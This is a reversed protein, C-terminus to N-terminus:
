NFVISSIGSSEPPFINILPCIVDENNQEGYPEDETLQPLVAGVLALVVVHLLLVQLDETECSFFNLKMVHSNNFLGSIILNFGLGFFM